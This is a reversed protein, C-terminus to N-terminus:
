RYLKNKHIYESIEPMLQLNWSTKSVLHHRIQTSSVDFLNTKAFYINGSEVNKLEALNSTQHKKLLAITAQNLQEFAYNPRSNVILHCLTLIERYQYWHTFTMLSDMGIIFYLPRNPNEKKLATLTDVTYSHGSRKLERQDCSFLTSGHCSIEVMTARQQASAHPVLEQSTKHPPIHAPILLVKKLDLEDAVAQASQTHGLHIPDFTGGLIGIGPKLPSLQKNQNAM